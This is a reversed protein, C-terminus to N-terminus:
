NKWNLAIYLINVFKKYHVIDKTEKPKENEVHKSGYKARLDLTSFNSSFYFLIL